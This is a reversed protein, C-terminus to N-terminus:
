LRFWGPGSSCPGRCGGHDDSQGRGCAVVECANAPASRLRVGFEDQQCQLILVWVQRLQDASLGRRHDPTDQERDGGRRLPLYSYLDAQAESSVLHADDIFKDALM